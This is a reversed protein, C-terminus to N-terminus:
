GKKGNTGNRADKQRNLLLAAACAEQLTGYNDISITDSFGCASTKWKWYPIVGLFYKRKGVRWRNILRSPKEVVTWQEDM